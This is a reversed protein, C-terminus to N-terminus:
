IRVLQPIYPYCKFMIILEPMIVLTYLVSNCDNLLISGKGELKLHQQQYSEQTNQLFRNLQHGEASKQHGYYRILIFLTLLGSQEPSSQGFRTKKWKNLRLIKV